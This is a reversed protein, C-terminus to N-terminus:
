QTIENSRKVNLLFRNFCPRYDRGFIPKGDMETMVPSGTDAVIASNQHDRFNTYEKKKIETKSNIIRLWGAM